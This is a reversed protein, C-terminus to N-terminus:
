LAGTWVLMASNVFASFLGVGIIGMSLRRKREARVTATLTMAVVAGGIAILHVRESPVLALAASTAVSALLLWSKLDGIEGWRPRRSALSDDRSVVERDRPM